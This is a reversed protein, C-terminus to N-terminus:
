KGGTLRRIEAAIDELLPQYNGQYSDLINTWGHTLQRLGIDQWWNEKTTYVKIVRGDVAIKIIDNGALPFVIYEIAGEDLFTYPTDFDGDRQMIEHLATVTVPEAVTIRIDSNVTDRIVAYTYYAVFIVAVAVVAALIVKGTKM